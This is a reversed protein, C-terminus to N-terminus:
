SSKLSASRRTFSEGHPKCAPSNVRSARRCERIATIRPTSPPYLMARAAAGTEDDKILMPYFRFNEPITLKEEPYQVTIFGPVPGPQERGGALYRKGFGRRRDAAFSDIIHRFTIGLGTLIGNGFM